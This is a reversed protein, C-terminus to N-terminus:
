TAVCVLVLGGFYITSCQLTIFPSESYITILVSLLLYNCVFFIFSNLKTFYNLAIIKEVLCNFFAVSILCLIHAGYLYKIINLVCLISCLVVLFVCYYNYCGLCCPFRFYYARLWFKSIFYKGFFDLVSPFFYPIVKLRGFLVVLYGSLITCEFLVFGVPFYLASTPIYTDNLCNLVTHFCWM